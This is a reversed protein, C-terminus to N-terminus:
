KFVVLEKTEPNELKEVNASSETSYYVKYVPNKGSGSLYSNALDIEDPQLPYTPTCCLTSNRTIPYVWKQCVYDPDVDNAIVLTMHIVADSTNNKFCLNLSVGTSVFKGHLMQTTVPPAIEVLDSM